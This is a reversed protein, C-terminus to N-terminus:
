LQGMTVWDLRALVNLDYSRPLLFELIKVTRYYDCPSVPM